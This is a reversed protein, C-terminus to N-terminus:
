TIDTFLMFMSTPEGGAQASAQSNAKKLSGSGSEPMINSEPDTRNYQGKLLPGNEPPTPTQGRSKQGTQNEKQNGAATKAGFIEM